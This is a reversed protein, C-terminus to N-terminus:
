SFFVHSDYLLQWQHGPRGFYECHWHIPQGAGLGVGFGVDFGVSVRRGVGVDVDINVEIRVDVGCGVGTDVVRGDDIGRGFVVVCVGNGIIGSLRKSVPM